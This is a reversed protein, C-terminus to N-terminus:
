GPSGPAAVAFLVGCVLAIAAILWTLRAAGAMVESERVLGIFRWGLAESPWVNAMYREGGLEVQVLGQGAQWSGIATAWSASSRSTTLPREPGGARHRQSGDADPLRKRRAQDAQGSRHAAQAVRRHEGGREGQGPPRRLECPASWCWMTAAWYYAETRLTKGPQAMATKYWPRTRPDYNALKPDGPWFVYGGDETGLSVYTYASHSKALGEFLAFL